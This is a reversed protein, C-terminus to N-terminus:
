EAADSVEVDRWEERWETIQDVRHQGTTTVIQETWKQQLILRFTSDNKTVPVARRVFRLHMTPTM